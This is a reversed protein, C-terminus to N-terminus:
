AAVAELRRPARAPGPNPRRDGPLRLANAVVLLTSGEHAIVATRGNPKLERIVGKVEYTQRDGKNCGLLLVAAAVIGFIKKGFM